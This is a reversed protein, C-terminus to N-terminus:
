SIGLFLLFAFILILAYEFFVNLSLTREIKHHLIALSFYFCLFTVINLGVLLFGGSSLVMFIVAILFSSLVIYIFTFLSQAGKRYVLLAGLILSLLCTLFASVWTDLQWYQGAHLILNVGFFFIVLKILDYIYRTKEEIRFEDRYYSGINIFLVINIFILLFIVIIRILDDENFYVFGVIFFFLLLPLTIHNLFHGWLNYVNINPMDIQRLVKTAYRWNIYIEFCLISATFCIAVLFAEKGYDKLLQLSALLGLGTLFAYFISRKNELLFKINKKM